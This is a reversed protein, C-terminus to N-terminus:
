DDDESEDAQAELMRSTLTMFAEEVREGSKASTELVTWGASALDAWATAPIEWTERLDAKNILVLFPRAGIETQVRQQISRAVDLTKSRTGDVVLLYGSADQVQKLKVPANDEEGAMDWLMLIVEEGEVNVVKKDIKVGVTTQYKPSFMSRVFREVLSTKGVGYSGLMCIKKKM